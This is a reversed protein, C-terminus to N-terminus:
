DSVPEADLGGIRALLELARIRDRSASAEDDAIREAIAIREIFSRRCRMRIISPPVGSGGRNGRVGGSLLAGGHAQPRKASADGRSRRGTQREGSNEGSNETM